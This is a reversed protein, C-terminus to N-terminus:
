QQCRCYRNSHPIHMECQLTFTLFQRLWSCTLQKPDCQGDGHARNEFIVVETYPDARLAHQRGAFTVVRDIAAM